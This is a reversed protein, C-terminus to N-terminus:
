SYFICNSEMFIWSVIYLFISMFIFLFLTRVSQQFAHYLQFLAVNTLVSIIIYHSLSCSEHLLYYYYDHHPNWWKVKKVGLTQYRFSVSKVHKFCFSTSSMMSCKEIFYSWKITLFHPILFSHFFTVCAAAKIFVCNHKKM